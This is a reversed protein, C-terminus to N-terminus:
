NKLSDAWIQMKFIIISYISCYAIKLIFFWFHQKETNKPIFRVYNSPEDETSKIIKNKFDETLAHYWPLSKIKKRFYNLNQNHCRMQEDIDYLMVQRYRGLTVNFNQM